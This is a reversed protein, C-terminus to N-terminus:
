PQHIITLRLGTDPHYRWSARFEGWSEELLGDLARTEGINQFVYDPAMLGRLVCYASGLLDGESDDQGKTDFSASKGDSSLQDKGLCAEATISLGGNAEPKVLEDFVQKRASEDLGLNLTANMKEAIGKAESESYEETDLNILATKAIITQSEFPQSGVSLMLGAKFADLFYAARRAEEVSPYMAITPENEGCNISEQSSLLWRKDEGSTEVTTTTAPTASTCKGGSDVFSQRIESISSGASGCSALVLGVIVMGLLSSRM